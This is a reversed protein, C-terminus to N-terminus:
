VRSPTPVIATSNSEVMDRCSDFLISCHAKLFVVYRSSTSSWMLKGSPTKELMREHVKLDREVEMYKKQWKHVDNETVVIDNYRM